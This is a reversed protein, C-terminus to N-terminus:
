EDLPKTIIREGADAAHHKALSATNEGCEVFPNPATLPQVEPVPPNSLTGKEGRVNTKIGYDVNKDFDLYSSLTRSEHPPFAMTNLTKAFQSATAGM